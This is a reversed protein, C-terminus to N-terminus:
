KKKIPLKMRYEFPKFGYKEYFKYANANKNFVDLRIEDIGRKQCITFLRDILKKGIGKRRMKKIVGFNSIHVVNPAVLYPSYKQEALLYGCIEKNEEAVLAITKDDKLSQLFGVKELNDDQPTFYGDLIDIHYQRIERCLQLTQPLDEKIFPRIEM